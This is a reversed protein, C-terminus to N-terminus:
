NRTLKDLKKNIEDIKDEIAENSGSIMSDVFISNVLSLGFIGGIFLIVIFYLRIFFSAISSSNGSLEDPIEYWGEVTFIKFISYFSIIPDGFYEPSLERFIFCSVLSAIFNFILFAFIIIVSAKSAKVVGSIINEIKPIFKIFRFFKFARLVRFVLLFDLDIFDLNFIWSVLSPIALVVLTFDFKNWNIKFYNKFGFHNLKVIAEVLFLITFINDFTSLYELLTIEFKFGQLFIIIANLAILLLIIKENLFIRKFM